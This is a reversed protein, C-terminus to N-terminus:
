RMSALMDSFIVENAQDVSTSSYSSVFRIINEGKVFFVVRQHLSIVVGTYEVAHGISYDSESKTYKSNQYPLALDVLKNSAASFVKVEVSTGSVDEFKVSSLTGDTILPSVTFTKPYAISYYPTSYTRSDDPNSEPSTTRVSINKQKVSNTAKDIDIFSVSVFLLILVSGIVLVVAVKKWGYKEVLQEM